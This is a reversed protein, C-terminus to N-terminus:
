NNITDIITKQITSMTLDRGNYNTVTVVNGVTTTLFMDDCHTLTEEDIDAWVFKINNKKCAEEVLLMSIGPLCNTRPALVTNDKVIAANFGPGESLFDDTSLLLATTYGQDIAEWQARTTDARVFNKHQQNVTSDPV